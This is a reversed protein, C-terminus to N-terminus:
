DFLDDLEDKGFPDAASKAAQVAAASREVSAKAEFEKGAAIDASLAAHLEAESEVTPIELYVSTDLRTAHFGDGMLPTLRPDDPEADTFFVMVSAHVEPTGFEEPEGEESILTRLLQVRGPMITPRIPIGLADLHDRVDDALEQIREESDYEHANGLACLVGRFYGTLTLEGTDANIPRYYTPGTPATM